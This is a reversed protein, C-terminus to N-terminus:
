PKNAELGSRVWDFDEPHVYQLVDKGKRNLAIDLGRSPYLWHTTNEDVRVREEPQGFRAGLIEEDLDATPVFTMGRIVARNVSAADRAAIELRANGTRQMKREPSHDRLTVLTGEDLQLSLILRGTLGGPSVKSYYAEASLTGDPTEFVAAEVAPGFLLLADALTSRGPVLGLVRTAGDPLSELLWPPAGRAREGTERQLTTLLLITLLVLLAAIWLHSKM